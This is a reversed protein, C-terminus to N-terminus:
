VHRKIVSIDKELNDLIRWLSTFASALETTLDTFKEDGFRKKFGYDVMEAVFSTNDMSVKRLEQKDKEQQEQIQKLAKALTSQNKKVVAFEEEISSLKLLMKENIEINKALLEENM